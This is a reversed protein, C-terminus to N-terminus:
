RVVTGGIIHAGGSSGGGGGAGDDLQDIMLDMMFVSDTDDVWSGSARNSAYFNSGGPMGTLYDSTPVNMQLLATNTATTPEKVTRYWTGPDLTVPNDFSLMQQATNTAQMDGDYAVSSSALESGADDQLMFNFDGNSATVGTMLLGSVRCKFPVQFRNGKAASSTNNFATTTFGSIPYAGIIPYFVTASSGFVMPFWNANGAKAPSGTNMARYPTATAGFSGSLNTVGFSTGSNYAIKFCFLQGKTITASATLAFLNWGSSLAGTVINTNTAWLTGSPLGTAAVTEIRLDATPSGTPSFNSFGVHSIVMDRDAMFIVSAYEGAADLTGGNGTGISSDSTRAILGPWIIPSALSQLAM